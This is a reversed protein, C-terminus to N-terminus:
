VARPDMNERPSTLPQTQLGIFFVVWRSGIYVTVGVAEGVTIVVTNGVIVAWPTARSWFESQEVGKPSRFNNEWYGHELGSGVGDV